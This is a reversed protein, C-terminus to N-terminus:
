RRMMEKESQGFSCWVGNEEIQAADCCGAKCDDFSVNGVGRNRKERACYVRNTVRLNNSIRKRFVAVKGDIVKRDQKLLKTEM